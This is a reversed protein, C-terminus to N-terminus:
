GRSQLPSHTGTPFDFLVGTQDFDPSLMRVIDPAIVEPPNLKMPDEGPWGQARLKTRLPGPNIINVRIKTLTNEAAYIKVLSELATKSVTYAGWFPQALPVVGSSVFLARGADSQRLLPDLSRILRWNATVNVAIVGDWIKPKLHTLPTIVGLLGANGFLMDLKGWREHIAAGLRDIGDFDKLDLPVLTAAGGKAKIEDDLEELAGTMRSVAIIHAGAEALALSAARGIGRSAGTVVAIRGALPKEEAM